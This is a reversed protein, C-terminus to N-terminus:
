NLSIFSKRKSMYDLLRATDYRDVFETLKGSDNFRFELNLIIKFPRSSKRPGELTEIVHVDAKSGYEEAAVIQLHSRRQFNHFYNGFFRDMGDIGKYVGGIPTCHKGWCVIKLEESIRDAVRKATQRQAEEFDNLLSQVAELPRFLLFEPKVVLVDALLRISGFEVPGGAEATGVVRTCLKAKDAFEAQTWGEKIRLKRIIDGNCCIGIRGM